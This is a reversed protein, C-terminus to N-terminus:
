IEEDGHTESGQQVEITSSPWEPMRVAGDHERLMRSIRERSNVFVMKVDRSVTAPSPIKIGPRGTKMLSVFERDKVISFPRRNEAVWRVIEAWREATTHQTHSYTVKGKGGAREFLATLPQNKGGHKESSMGLQRSATLSADKTGLYRNVLRPNAGKGRCRGANCSFVHVRRGDIYEISPTPDFFTYTTSTWDQQLRELEAEKSEEESEERDSEQAAKKASKKAPKKSPQTEPKKAPQTKSKTLKKKKKKDELIEIDDDESSILITNPNHPARWRRPQSDTEEDEDEDVDEVTTHQNSQMQSPM